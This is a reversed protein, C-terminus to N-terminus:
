IQVLVKMESSPFRAKDLGQPLEELPIIETILSHFDFMDSTIIDLASVFEEYYSFSSFLELEKALCTMSNILVPEWSLSAMIVKGGPACLEIAQELTDKQGACDFVLLPRKWIQDDFYKLLDTRTSDAVEAIRLNKIINRRRLVPESIVVKHAGAWRLAIGVLAGMPGGGLILASDGIRAGSRRVARVASALPEALTGERPSVEKRLKWVQEKKVVLYEAFGGPVKGFGVANEIAQPCINPRGGICAPCKGCPAYPRIAVQDDEKLDKVGAGLGAIKGTVEHGIIAGEPILGASILHLDTGCIGCYRVKILVEGPGAKPNPVEEIKFGLKLGRWVASKM